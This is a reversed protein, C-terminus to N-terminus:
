NMSHEQQQEPLLDTSTRGRSRRRRGAEWPLCGGIFRQLMLGDWLLMLQQVKPWEKMPHLGEPVTETHSDWLTVFGVLFSVGTHARREMFRCSGSLIKSYCPNAMPEYCGGAGVQSEEMPQLHIEADGHDEMPQLQKVMTQVMPQM